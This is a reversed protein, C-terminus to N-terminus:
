AVLGKKKPVTKAGAQIALIHVLGPFAPNELVSRNVSETIGHGVHHHRRVLNAGDMLFGPLSNRRRARRDWSWLGGRLHKDPPQTTPSSNRASRQSNRDLRRRPEYCSDYISSDLFRNVMSSAM